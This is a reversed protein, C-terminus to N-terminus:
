GEVVTIRHTQSDVLDTPCLAVNECRGPEGDVEIALEDVYQVQPLGALVALLDSALVDRGFPWGTGVPGGTLPDFFADLAKQAASPLGSTGPSAHLTAEVTIRVFGPGVV